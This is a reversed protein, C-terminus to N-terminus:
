REQLLQATSYRPLVMRETPGKESWYVISDSPFSGRTFSVTEAVVQSQPGLTRLPPDEGSFYLLDPPRKSLHQFRSGCLIPLNQSGALLQNEERSLTEGALLIADEGELIGRLSRLGKLRLLDSWRESWDDPPPYRQAVAQPMGLFQTKNSIREDDESLRCSLRWLFEPSAQAFRPHLYVAFTWVESPDQDQFQAIWDSAEYADEPNWLQIKENGLLPRLDYTAMATALIDARPELIILHDYQDLDAVVSEAIHGAGFGLLLANRHGRRDLGDYWATDAGKPDRFDDLVIAQEWRDFLVLAPSGNLSPLTLSPSNGWDWDETVSLREPFRRKLASLNRPFLAAASEPLCATGAWDALPIPQHDSM